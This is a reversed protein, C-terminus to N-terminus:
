SQEKWARRFEGVWAHLAWVFLFFGGLSLTWHTLIGWFLMAIAMAMAAPAYTPRPVSEIPESAGHSTHSKSSASM